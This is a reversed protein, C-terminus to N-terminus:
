RRPRCCAAWAPSPARRCSSRSPVCRGPSWSRRSGPRALLPRARRPLRLVGHRDAARHRRGPPPVALARGRRHQAHLGAEAAGRNLATIAPASMSGFSMGSINVLSPPRFAKRGDARAASSRPAPCAPRPPTTTRSRSPSPATSSSRTAPSTSSTTTPASAPTTTRRRRRPMSGRASTAALVAAGRRQRHRHVPAARARHDGALLPLAGIVPYNRLLTHRKQTLDRAAVVAVAAAAAGLIRTVKM